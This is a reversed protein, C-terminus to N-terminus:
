NWFQKIWTAKKWQKYSTNVVDIPDPKGHFIVVKSKKPLVAEGTPKLYGKKMLWEGLHGLKKWGRSNCDKKYSVIWSSPYVEVSPVVLGLWDQDGHMNEMIWKQNYLFGQWVYDLEGIEYRVVSSNIVNWKSGGKDQISCTRGPQFLLLEDLNATIVIDLDLFLATGSLGYFEKRFISLKHWWGILSGDYLPLVNVEELLGEADETICYFEFPTSLNRKVMSYLQNVDSTPYKSGWKLCIVNLKKM